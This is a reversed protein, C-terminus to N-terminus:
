YKKEPKLFIPFLTRQQKMRLTDDSRITNPKRRLGGGETIIELDGNEIMATHIDDM